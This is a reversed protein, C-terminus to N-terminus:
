RAPRPRAGGVGRRRRSSADRLVVQGKGDYGGRRTKLIAPAGTREVAATLGDRDDVAAYEAVGIGLRRFTDKEALRDQAVDLPSRARTARAARAELM